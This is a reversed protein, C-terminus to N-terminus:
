YYLQESNYYIATIHVLLSSKKRMSRSFLRLVCEFFKNEFDLKINTTFNEHLNQLFKGVLYECAYILSAFAIFWISITQHNKRSFKNTKSSLM